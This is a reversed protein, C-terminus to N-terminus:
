TARVPSVTASYKRSSSPWTRTSRRKKSSDWSTWASWVAQGNTPDPIWFIFWGLFWASQKTSQVELPIIQWQNTLNTSNAPECNHIPITGHPFDQNNKVDFKWQQLLQKVRIGAKWSTSSKTSLIKRKVWAPESTEPALQTVTHLFQSFPKMNSVASVHDNSKRKPNARLLLGGPEFSEVLSWEASALWKWTAVFLQPEFHNVSVFFVFCLCKLRKLM